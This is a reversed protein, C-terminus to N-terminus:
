ETYPQLETLQPFSQTERASRHLRGGSKHGSLDSPLSYDRSTMRWSHQHWWPTSPLCGDVAWDPCSPLWRAQNEVDGEGNGSSAWAWRRHLSWVMWWLECGQRWMQCRNISSTVHWCVSWNINRGCVGTVIPAVNESQRFPVRKPAHLSVCGDRNNYRRVQQIMPQYPWVVATRRSIQLGVWREVGQDHSHWPGCSFVTASAWNGVAFLKYVTHWSM